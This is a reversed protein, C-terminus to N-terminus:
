AKHIGAFKSCSVCGHQTFIQFVCPGWIIKTLVKNKIQQKVLWFHWSSAWNFHDQWLTSKDPIDTIWLKRFILWVLDALLRCILPVGSSFHFYTVLINRSSCCFLPTNVILKVQNCLTSGLRWLNTLCVQTHQVHCVTIWNLSEICQEGWFKTYLQQLWKSSSSSNNNECWKM